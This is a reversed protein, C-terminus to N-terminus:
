HQVDHLADQISIYKIMQWVKREVEIIQVRPWWMDTIRLEAVVTFSSAGFM